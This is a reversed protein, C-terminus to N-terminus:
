FEQELSFGALLDEQASHAIRLGLLFAQETRLSLGAGYCSHFAGVELDGYEDFIQGEEFFFFANWSDWVPYRYEAALLLAGEGRFNGREYGRLRQSGGLTPLETYPILGNDLGHVKDLRARVALVRERWFLTRFYQAQAGLRLFRVDDSGTAYEAEAELLHGREPYALDRYSHYLGAEEVLIRGPFQYNLGHSIHRTPPTYDRDDYALRAGLRAFSLAQGLGPLARATPTAKDLDLLYERTAGPYQDTLDRWSFGASIHAELGKRYEELPGAFSRWGLIAGADAREVALRGLDTDGEAARQQAEDVVIGNISANHHDTRLYDGTLSLRLPRGVLDPVEYLIEGRQRDPHSFIYLLELQEGRGWLDTHFLRAGLGHSTEGGIAVQPYIGFTHDVNTFLDRAQLHLEEHEAYITFQGLPYVLLNWLYQPAQLMPYHPTEYAATTDRPAPGFAAAYPDDGRASTSSLAGLLAAAWVISRAARASATTM